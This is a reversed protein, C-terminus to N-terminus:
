VVRDDADRIAVAEMRREGREQRDPFALLERDHLADTIRVRRLLVVAVDLERKGAGVVGAEIVISPYRPRQNALRAGVREVGDCEFREVDALPVRHARETSAPEGRDLDM